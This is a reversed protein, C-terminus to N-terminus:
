CDVLARIEGQLGRMKPRAKERHSRKLRGAMRCEGQPGGSIHPM